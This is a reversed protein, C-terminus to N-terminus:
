VHTPIQGQIDEVMKLADKMKTASLKPPLNFASRAKAFTALSFVEMNQPDQNHCTKTDLSCLRIDGTDETMNGCNPYRELSVLNSDELDQERSLDTSLANVYFEFIYGIVWDSHFCFNKLSTYLFFLQFISMGDSFLSAEGISDRKIQACIVEHNTSHDNCYIPESLQELAAKNIVTAFGGYPIHYPLDSRCFSIVVFIINKTSM